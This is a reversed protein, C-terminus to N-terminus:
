PSLQFSFSSCKVCGVLMESIHLNLLEFGHTPRMPLAVRAIPNSLPHLDDSQSCRWLEVSCQALNLIKISTLAPEDDQALVVTVLFKESSLM